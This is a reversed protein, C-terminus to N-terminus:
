QSKWPKNHRMTLGNRCGFVVRDGISQHGMLKMSALIVSKLLFNAGLGKDMWGYDQLLGKSLYYNLATPVHRSAASSRGYNGQPM